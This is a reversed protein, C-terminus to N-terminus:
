NNIVWRYEGVTWGQVSGDLFSIGAFNTDHDVVINKEATWASVGRDDLWYDQGVLDLKCFFMTTLTELVDIQHSIHNGHNSHHDAWHQLDSFNCIDQKDWQKIGM